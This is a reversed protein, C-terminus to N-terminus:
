LRSRSSKTVRARTIPATPTVNPTTPKEIPANAHGPDDLAAVDLRPNWGDMPHFTTEVPAVGRTPPGTARAVLSRKLASSAGAPVNGSAVIRCRDRWPM